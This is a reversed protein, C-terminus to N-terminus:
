LVVQQGVPDYEMLWPTAGSRQNREFRILVGDRSWKLEDYALGFDNSHEKQEIPEGYKALVADRVYDECVDLFKNKGYLVVKTVTGNEYHIDATAKCNPIVEVDRVVWMKGKRDQGQPYLSQVQERTMGAEINQWLPTGAHAVSAVSLAFAAIMIKVPKTGGPTVARM